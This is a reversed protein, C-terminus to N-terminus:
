SIKSQFEQLITISCVQFVKSILSLNNYIKKVEKNTFSNSSLLINLIMKEM